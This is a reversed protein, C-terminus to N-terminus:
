SASSDALVHERAAGVAARIREFEAVYADPHYRELEPPSPAGAHGWLSVTVPTCHEILAQLNAQWQGPGTLFGHVLLLHPGRGPHVEYRLEM